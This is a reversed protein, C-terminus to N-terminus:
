HAVLSWPWTHAIIRYVTNSAFTWVQCLFGAVSHMPLYLRVNGLVQRYTAEGNLADLLFYRIVIKLGADHLEASLTCDCSGGFVYRYM